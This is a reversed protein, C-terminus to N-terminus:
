KEMSVNEVSPKPSMVRAFCQRSSDDNSAALPKNINPQDVARTKGAVLLLPLGPTVADAPAEREHVICGSRGGM